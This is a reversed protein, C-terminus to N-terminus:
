FWPLARMVIIVITTCLAMSLVNANTSHIHEPLKEAFFEAVPAGIIGGLVGAFVAVPISAGFILVCAPAVSVVPVYTAYWGKEYYKYLYLFVGVGGGIFQSLIIAPLAGSGGAGHGCNLIWDACAGIIAFIGVVENGYFQPESIDALVRRVTWAPRLMRQLKEEESLNEDKTVPSFDIKKMWPLMKCVQCIVIGTIAMTVVNGVTAPLDVLPLIKCMIWFATPFCILGGLISVTFLAKYNPGYLLMISPPVGVVTIFTPLWTFNGSDFFSTYNLVFIAFSLSIVQSAFVWPWLNTGYCIDFGALPSKKVSLLWAVFGGFIIGISALFGAYFQPESFDKIFWIFKYFLNSNANKVIVDYPLWQSTIHISNLAFYFAFGIVITYILGLISGTKKTLLISKNDSM